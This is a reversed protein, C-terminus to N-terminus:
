ICTALFMTSDAHYGFCKILWHAILPPHFSSSNTAILLHDLSYFLRAMGPGSVANTYSYYNHSMQSMNFNLWVLSVKLHYWKCVIWFKLFLFLTLIKMLSLNSNANLTKSPWNPIYTGKGWRKELTLCINGKGRIVDNQFFLLFSGTHTM